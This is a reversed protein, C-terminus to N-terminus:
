GEKIEILHVLSKTKFSSLKITTPLIFNDIEYLTHVLIGYKSISSYTRTHKKIYETNSFEILYLHM